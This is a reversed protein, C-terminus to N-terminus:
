MIVTLRSKNFVNIEQDSYGVGSIILTTSASTPTKIEFNGGADSVTGINTGKLLVSANAVARNLNDKITGTVVKAEQALIIAYQGLFLFLILLRKM